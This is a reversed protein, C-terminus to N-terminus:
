SSNLLPVLKFGLLAFADSSSQADVMLIMSKNLLYSRLLRLSLTTRIKVRKSKALSRTLSMSNLESRTWKLSRTSITNSGPLSTQIM